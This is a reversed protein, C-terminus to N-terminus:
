ARSLEQMLLAALEERAAGQPAGDRSLLFVANLLQDVALAEGAALRDAFAHVLKAVPGGDPVDMRLHAGVLSRLAEPTLRPMTFRVCRRLFPAPFIQEGNSTLVIFPFQTCAIRGRVVTATDRSQHLRVRVEDREYRVLEPIEFEGNELVDLLDSPLDLDSKDLEDVLLARPRPAPLLATGLPGLQLFPAIDDAAAAGDRGAGLRQAHIRGLADYQYLADALTSRSTVHWRLVPGFDLEATVQEIVTSKGSGPLGTILLPRRLWLAANVAERLGPPPQFVASMAPRPFTRWPPPEPLAVARRVGDGRYYGDWAPVPSDPM